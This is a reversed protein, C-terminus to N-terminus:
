DAPQRWGDVARQVDAPEPHSAEVEEISRAAEDAAPVLDTTPIILDYASVAGAPLVTDLALATAHRRTLLREYTQRYVDPDYPRDDGAVERWLARLVEPPADERERPHLPHEARRAREAELHQRLARSPVPIVFRTTPGALLPEADDGGARALEILRNGIFPTEGILLAEGAHGAYWRAVAARAWRGVALRIVGHTVGRDQPYRRGAGCAEFVPRAVDWQLLHIRRGRAHALHALERILLSKGTGPLGAFFVLRAERALTALVTYLPSGEDILVGSELLSSTFVLQAALADHRRAKAHPITRRSGPRFPYRRVAMAWSLELFRDRNGL